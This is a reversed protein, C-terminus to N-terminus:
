AAKSAAKAAPKRAAKERGLVVYRGSANRNAKPSVPVGQDQSLWYAYRAVVEGSRRAFILTGLYNHTKVAPHNTAQEVDLTEAIKGSKWAAALAKAKTTPYAPKDAVECKAVTGKAEDGLEARLADVMARVELGRQTWTVMGEPTRPKRAPKAAPLEVVEAKPKRPARKRAPKTAPAETVPAESVLDTISDSEVVPAEVTPTSESISM